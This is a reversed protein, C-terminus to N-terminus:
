TSLSAFRDVVRQAQAKVNHSPHREHLDRVASEVSRDPMSAHLLGRLVALPVLLGDENLLERLRHASLSPEDGLSPASAALAAGAEARVVPDENAALQLVLVTRWIQGAGVKASPLALSRAAEVQGPRSGGALATVSRIYATRAILRHASLFRLASPSVPLPAQEWGSGPTLLSSSSARLRTRVKKPLEIDPDALRDLAPAKDEESVAQDELFDTLPTWLDHADLKTILLAALDAESFGGKQFVGNAASDRTRSLASSVADTAASLEVTRALEGFQSELILRAALELGIPRPPGVPHRHVGDLADLVSLALSANQIEQRASAWQRWRSRTAMSVNSWDLAHVVEGAARARLGNPDPDDLLEDLTVRAVSTDRGSRRVLRARLRTAEDSIWWDASGRVGFRSPGGRDVYWDVARLARRLEKASLLDAAGAFLRLDLETASQRLDSRMLALRAAHSLSALPGAARVHAVLDSHLEKDDAHRALRLAESNAWGRPADASLMIVRALYARRARVHVVDGGLEAQFLAAVAPAVVPDESHWKQRGSSWAVRSELMQSALAAGSGALRGLLRADIPDPEARVLSVWSQGSPGETVFTVYRARQTLARWLQKQANKASIAVGQSTIFDDFTKAAPPPSITESAVTLAEDGRGSDLLRLATQQALVLLILRGSASGSCRQGLAQRTTRLLDVAEDVRELENLAFSAFLAAAARAGDTLDSNEAAHMLATAGQDQRGEEVSALVALVLPDHPDAAAHLPPHSQLDAFRGGAVLAVLNPPASGDQSFNPHPALVHPMTAAVVWEVGTMDRGDM